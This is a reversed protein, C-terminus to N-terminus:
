TVADDDRERFGRRFFEPFPQPSESELRLLMLLFPSEPYDVPVGVLVLPYDADLLFTIQYLACFPEGVHLYREALRHLVQRRSADPRDYVNERGGQAQERELRYVFESLCYAGFQLAVVDCGEKRQVLLHVLRM